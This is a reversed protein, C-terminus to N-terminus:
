FLIQQDPSLGHRVPQQSDEKAGTRSTESELSRKLAQITKQMSQLSHLVFAFALLIASLAVGVLGAANTATFGADPDFSLMIFLSIAGLIVAITSLLYVM